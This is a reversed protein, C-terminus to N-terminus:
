LVSGSASRTMHQVNPHKKAMMTNYLRPDALARMINIARGRSPVGADLLSQVGAEFTTARRAIARFETITKM